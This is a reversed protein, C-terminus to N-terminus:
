CTDTRQARVYKVTNNEHNRDTWSLRMGDTVRKNTVLFRKTGSITQPCPNSSIVGGGGGGAMGEATLSLSPHPGFFPTPTQHTHVSSPYCTHLRYDIPHACTLFLRRDLPPLKSLSLWEGRKIFVTNLLLRGRGGSQVKLGTSSHQGRTGRAVHASSALLAGPLHAGPQTGPSKSLIDSHLCATQWTRLTLAKEM